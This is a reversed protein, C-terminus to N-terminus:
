GKRTPWALITKISAPSPCPSSSHKFDVGQVQSFGRAVLRAKFKSIKGEKDTKWDFCWKTSVAKRGKPLEEM